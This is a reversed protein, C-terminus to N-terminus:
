EGGESGSGRQRGEVHSADRGRPRRHGHAIPHDDVHETRAGPVKGLPHRSVVVHAELALVPMRAGVSERQEIAHSRPHDAADDGHVGHVLVGHDDDLDHVASQAFGVLCQQIM